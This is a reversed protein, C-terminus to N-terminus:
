LASHHSIALVFVTMLLITTTTTMMMTSTTLKSTSAGSAESSNSSSNTSPNTPGTYNLPIDATYGPLTGLPDDTPRTYIVPDCLDPVTSKDATCPKCMAPCLVKIVAYKPCTHTYYGDGSPHNCKFYQDDCIESCDAGMFGPPCKCSCSEEDLTGCNRCIAKCECDPGPGTCESNCLGDKRCWAKGNDCKSCVPGKKYPQVHKIDENEDHYRMNGPPYYHCVLYWGSNFNDPPKVFPSCYHRDCGVESANAWVMATYHGCKRNKVCTATTYTYDVKEDYWREVAIKLSFDTFPAAYLNQTPKFQFNYQMWTYVGNSDKAMDHNWKCEAAWEAGLKALNENWTLLKMDAAKEKARVM